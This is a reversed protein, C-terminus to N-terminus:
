LHWVKDNLNGIALFVVFFQIAYRQCSSFIKSMSRLTIYGKSCSRLDLMDCQFHNTQTYPADGRLLLLM